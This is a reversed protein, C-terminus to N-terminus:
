PQEFLSAGRCLSGCWQHWSVASVLTFLHGGERVDWAELSRTRGLGTVKERKNKEVGRGWEAWWMRVARTCELVRHSILGRRSCNRCKRCQQRYCM